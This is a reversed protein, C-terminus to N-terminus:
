TWFLPWARVTLWDLSWAKLPLRVPAPPSVLRPSAARVRALPLSKVPSAVISCPVRVREPASAVLAILTALPAVRVVVAASRRLSAAVTVASPVTLRPPLWVRLLRSPESVPATLM